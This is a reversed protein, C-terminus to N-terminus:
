DRPSSSSDEAGLTRSRRRQHNTKNIWNLTASQRCQEFIVSRKRTNVCKLSKSKAKLARKNDIWSFGGIRSASSQDSRCRSQFGVSKGPARSAPQSGPIATVQAAALVGNARREVRTCSRSRKKRQTPKTKNNRASEALSAIVATTTTISLM